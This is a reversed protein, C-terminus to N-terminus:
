LCSSHFPLQYFYSVRVLNIIVFMEVVETTWLLMWVIFLTFIKREVLVNAPKICVLLFGCFWAEDFESQELDKCYYKQLGVYLFCLLFSPLELSIRYLETTAPKLKLRPPPVDDSGRPRFPRTCIDSYIVIQSWEGWQSKERKEASGLGGCTKQLSQLQVLLWNNPRDASKM